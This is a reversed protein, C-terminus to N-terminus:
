KWEKEGVNFVIAILDQAQDRTYGQEMAIKICEEYKEKTIM